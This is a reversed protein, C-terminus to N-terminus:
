LDERKKELRRKLKELAKTHIRCIKSKSLGLKNAIEKQKLDQKYFMIIVQQEEELLEGVEDWLLGTKETNQEAAIMEIHQEELSDLSLLCAISSSAIMQYVSEEIATMDVEKGSQLSAEMVEAIREQVKKRYDQYKNPNRYQWEQRIKDSIEGRIRYFAYTSFKSGKESKFNRYAKVLGETGWSILDGMDIGSPLNRKNLMGAAIGSIMPM